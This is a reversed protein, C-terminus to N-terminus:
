GSATAEGMDFPTAQAAKGCCFGGIVVGDVMGQPSAALAMDAAATALAMHM